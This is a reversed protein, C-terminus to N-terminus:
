LHHGLRLSAGMMSSGSYIHKVCALRVRETFKQRGNKDLRFALERYVLPRSPFPPRPELGMAGIHRFHTSFTDFYFSQTSWAWIMKRQKGTYREAGGSIGFVFLSSDSAFNRIIIISIVPKLVAGM